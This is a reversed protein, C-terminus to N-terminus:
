INAVQLTIWFGIGWDLIHQKKGGFGCPFGKLILKHGEQTNWGGFQFCIIKYM